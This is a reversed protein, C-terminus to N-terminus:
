KQLATSLTRQKGAKKKLFDARRGDTRGDTRRDTVNRLDVSLMLCLFQKVRM